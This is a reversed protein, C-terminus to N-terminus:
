YNQYANNNENAFIRCFGSYCHYKNIWEKANEICCCFLIM